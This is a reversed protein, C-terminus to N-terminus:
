DKKPFDLLQKSTSLIKERTQAAKNERVEDKESLTNITKNILEEDNTYYYIDIGATSPANTMLPRGYSIIDYVAYPVYNADDLPSKDM